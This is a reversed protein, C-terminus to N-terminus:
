YYEIERVEIFIPKIGNYTVRKTWNDCKDYEYEFKLETDTGRKEERIVSEIDDNDNYSYTKKNGEEDQEFLLKGQKDYEVVRNVKGDKNYSTKKILVDGDYEDMYSGEYSIEDNHYSVWKIIGNEANKEYIVRDEDNGSIRKEELLDGTKEDYKCRYEFSYSNNKNLTVSVIKGSKEDYKMADERMLDGEKDYEKYSINKKGESVYIRKGYLEMDDDYETLSEIMGEKDFLKLSIAQASTYYYSSNMLILLDSYKHSSALDGMTVEGFKMKAEYISTKVSKVHGKLNLEELTTKDKEGSCSCLVMSTALAFLLIRKM